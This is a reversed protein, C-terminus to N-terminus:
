KQVLFNLFCNVILKDSEFFKENEHDEIFNMMSDITEEYDESELINKLSKSFKTM